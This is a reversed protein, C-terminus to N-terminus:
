REARLERIDVQLVDMRRLLESFHSEETAKMAAIESQIAATTTFYATIAALAVGIIWQMWRERAPMYVTDRSETSPQRGKHTVEKDAGHEHSEDPEDNARSDDAGNVGGDWLGTVPVFEVVIPFRM